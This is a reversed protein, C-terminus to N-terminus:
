GPVGAKRLAHELRGKARAAIFQPSVHPTASFVIQVQDGQVRHQLARLGDANWAARVGEIHKDLDATFPGDARWGTWVYRLAFAAPATTPDYLPDPRPM